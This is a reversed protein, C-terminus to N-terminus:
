TIDIIRASTAVPVTKTTILGTEDIKFTIKAGQVIDWYVLGTIASYTGNVAASNHIEGGSDYPPDVMIATATITALPTLGDLSMCYEYCRCADPATPTGINIITGTYAASTVGSVALTQNTFTYGGKLMRVTYTGDNLSTTMVGSADTDGKTVLVTNAANWIQVDVDQIPLTGDTV